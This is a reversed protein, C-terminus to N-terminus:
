PCDARGRNNSDCDGEDGVYGLVDVSIISRDNAHGQGNAVQQAAQSAAAASSSAASQAGVNAVPGTALGSASGSVKFNEANAVSAAAVYLNGAVRVGADGADVTGRPAILYVSPAPSGPAPEFAAIGAGSVANAQDLVANADEDNHVALPPFNASTKPGQGANLSGNSSWMIVDGGAETFLRSQNLLFDTDTFTDISGGRLTLVGEEGVPISVITSLSPGYAFPGDDPSTTFLRGGDYVRRAAQASTAVTSGGLVRGGPGLLFVNGGRSTQITALRLDLNGTEVTSNAGNGGGSLNNQTYGDSAPFLLNVAQYGRAYKKFSPSSPISTQALETFYVDSLLFEAQVLEPLTKFVQYAQEFTVDQTGYAAELADAAHGQLWQILIPGYNPEVAGASTIVETSVGNKQDAVNAPNLYAERLADFNQGNAVGFEVYVDAGVPQLWPNWENGVSLVGGGYTLQNAPTLGIDPGNNSNQKASFPGTVASNLFPGMDRGAELFFSGPGGIVFTNGQVAPLLSSPSGNALLAQELKTTGVIDREAVIRTTDSAEVNQGFFMMDVLDRGASIRTQKPTVLTVDTIDGGAYIQNPETDGQHTPTRNHELKRAVDPTSSLVSPFLFPIGSVLVGDSTTAFTSFFGPRIGPDADDMAIIASTIDGGAMLRLDGTASPIMVVAAADNNGGATAVDLSDALSIASFSAPYVAVNNSNTIPLTQSLGFLEKNDNEVAVAGNALASVGSTVSYFAAADLLEQFNLGNASPQMVGLAGVGDLDASGKVTLAITADALRLQLLNSANISNFGSITENVTIQGASAVDGGVSVIAQGSAVDLRGGLLNGGASVFVNGGGFTMLAQTTPAGTTTVDATAVSADAAILVDSIDVGATVTISGGGLTAVGSRFLQPNIEINTVDGVQGVRWPQDGSGVFSGISGFLSNLQSETYADRRGLVDQGAAISVDGGGVGYVPNALLVGALGNGGGGGGYIYGQPTAFIDGTSLYAAPDVTQGGVTVASPVTRVGATYIATGGLQEDGNLTPTAGNRLDVTGAAAVAIAGSGTRVLSSYTARAGRAIAAPAAFRDVIDAFASTFEASEFFQTALSLTTSIQVPQSSTGQVLQAQPTAANLYQAFFAAAASAVEAETGQGNPLPSLDILAYTNDDVGENNSEFAALWQDVPTLTSGDPSLELVPNLTDAGRKPRYSYVYRGEVVVNGSSQPSVQLPNVSPSLPKQAPFPGLDAGGVLQYSWSNVAQAGGGATPLLPFLEANGLADAVGTQPDSEPEYASPTNLEPSYPALPNTFLALAVGTKFDNVAPLVFDVFDDPTVGASWAGISQCGNLVCSPAIGDTYQRDGGGLVYNLYNPDNQDHFAFFGDTLSGKLDLTGGARLTLIGPEGTVSGGTRYTLSTFNAFILGEDGAKVVYKGTLPDFTMLGAAAAGATDVVGAGLNWNSELVIDGPYDLEVGPRAHFAPDAALGGLNGYTQSSLQFDQVFAVITGPANDALFNPQGTATLDLLLQGKKISVGSFQHSAVVDRLDWRQFAELVIQSAGTVTGGQDTVNVTDGGILPARIDVQGGVDGAVYQYYTVGNRLLPVLRAANNPAAVNIVAGSELTIQGSGDTGLTVKGGTAQRTDAAGYGLAQAEIDAAGQLDVGGMGYLSVNGGSIGTVDILGDVNVAGGDATLSVNLAHISQGAALDLDDAGSHITLNGTFVSGPGQVFAALDFAGSTDLTFSGGDGPAAGDIVGALNVQGLPASLTLSGAQGVAGGVLLRAAAGSQAIGSGDAGALNIDGTASSLILQGGPASVLVPDLADGFAKAYSPTEVQAGKDLTLGDSASISLNGATARLLVDSVSVLGGGTITLASGPAGTVSPFTVNTPNDITIDGDASLALSPATVTSPTTTSTSPKLRDGIFATHLHLDATGFNLGAGKGEAFVGHTATVDAVDGLGYTNLLGGAFDIENAAITLDNVGCGFGSSDCPDTAPSTNALTLIHADITLQDDGFDDIGPTDLTLDNFTYDGSAFGIPNPASLVLQPFAAIQAELDPSIFLGDTVTPGPGSTGLFTIDQASLSLSKGILTASSSIAMDGSTNLLLSAGNLTAAGLTLQAAGLGDTPSVRDVTRQAGTSVRLLAGDGTVNSFFQGHGNADTAISADIVFAGTNPDDTTGSAIISAGDEVQLGAGDGDTVLIIDPARLPHASDNAVTISQASIVPTLDVFGTTAQLGLHTSLSTDGDANDARLGGILLSSAGLSTLDGATLTIVGPTPSDPLTSVIEFVSGAVASGTLDVRPSGAIDVLSGRGGAAPTTMFNAGFTMADTPDLILRGADIPLQPTVAGSHAALAAFKQDGSTLVINSYQLFVSQPQVDFVVPTASEAGSTADGFRGAVVLTGDLQKASGNPPPTAASTDQVVRMGGPLMAYQAPLLTYWGAALGPAASLYVRLGAGTYPQPGASTAGSASYLNAYNASYIPDFPAVAADSLGPVIAYVQRKDAYQFGVGNSLHNSSFQDTNFQSLVDRSGGVGPIFEYAYVDGGGRLDVQAGPDLKVTAAALDLLGAPPATLEAAISPAFFWETQDTTAGFPISLGDASVSTISGQALELSTTSPAFQAAGNLSLVFPLDSGLELSGLPARVVGGQIIQAAQILLEGGASYPAAPTAGASAVSIVGDDAASSIAFQTGTTPYVQGATIHLDGNVALQGVLSPPATSTTINYVTQYTEVGTLRLASAAQLNATGVSQDFLVAGVVDITDGAFTATNDGLTGYAPSSLKQFSGDFGIYPAFVALRGGSSVTPSLSDDVQPTGITALGDYPASTLFFARGLSLSADGASSISGLASFTDFGSAEIMASSIEGEQPSAPDTQTLVPRFLTLSGNQAQPAGGFADIQAGTLMFAGIQGGTSTAAGAALVLSGGSSWVPTPSLAGTDSPLDFTASAGSLDIQANPEAVFEQGLLVKRSNASSGGASYISDTTSTFLLSTATFAGQTELLGGAVVQGNVAQVGDPTLGKARPNILSEGSLDTVSGAALRVGQNQDLDGLLFLAFQGPGAGTVFGAALQGNTLGDGRVDAAGEDISGDPNIAFADSLQHVGIGSTAYFQPLTESQNITGGPIRILGENFLEPTTLVAGAEGQISGGQAVHLEILGDLDLNVAKRDWADSPIQPTVVSYLDGGSALARLGATQDQSLVPSFYTQTLSLTQGAGVTLVQTALLADYGGLATSFPNAFLASGYSTIHYTAFGAKSLFDLPLTTGSAAPTDGFSIAPTWLSFTGGGGFGNDLITAQSFDVRATIASPNAPVVGADTVRFGPVLAQSLGQAFPETVLQFYTTEETLSLDGGRATLTMTGNPAVYGGGALDLTAGQDVLISGSIDVNPTTTSDLAPSQLVSPAASLSIQGGNLYASGSLQDASLGFDNVWRGRVSLEGAIEVDFAGPAPTESVFASGTGEVTALQILGSPASVQGGVTIKRGAQAILAGGPELVLTADATVTFRGSTDLWLEDLGAGSLTEASLDVTDIRSVPLLSGADPAAEALSGDASISLAHGYTLSSSVPQFDGIDLIAIDGGGILSQSLTPVDAELRFFGGAPLQSSAGQLKRIDGTISSTATGVQAQARQLPGAYANAFVQGDLVLVPANITLAGADAGETYSGVAHAGALLPDTYTRSIGWRPQTTTFGDYVGVYTDDPNAQSIDVIQGSASILRTTQIEGAQYTRWGGSVDIAAGPKITVSPSAAAAGGAYGLTGITIDGGKTLLQAASVGVQQYYSEAAILPSGVWAVGDSRVGSIRPDVSVTAGNLFSNRYTPTDALENRKVPTITVINQSAPVAVDTLGAADVAAGTDIFVGPAANVFAGVDAGIGIDGGPAYVLANQGISIASAPAGIQVQSTKFASVSTPSQPITAANSDATISLAANPGINVAGGDIRIFGNQAVSTTSTIVGDDIVGGGGSSSLSVYGRPAEILGSNVVYDSLPPAAHTTDVDTDGTTVFGRVNPDYSGAAGESEHLIIQRGSQLSVQGDAASLDGENRVRPATFLLFGGGTSTIQAGADVVVDGELTPDYTNGAVGQATFTFDFLANAPSDQEAVGQLGLNLFELNRQQISLPTTTTSNPIFARGVDLSSAALSHVNVQAGAGFIVGNPNIVLVIGDAKISGLIQSPAPATDAMRLGSAPDIQGVVRNLAVWQPQAVGNQQQVYQLTTQAGVNYTTWSLVARPDTQTITVNTASGNTTQVPLSAGQWTLIGTPDHLAGQISAVAPQLGGLGIGNRVSSPISAAAAHAAAQVQHAMSAAAAAQAQFRLARVQAGELDPPAAASFVPVSAAAAAAGGGSGSAGATSHIGGAARLAAVSQAKAPHVAMLALLGAVSAGHLLRRRLAGSRSSDGSATLSM